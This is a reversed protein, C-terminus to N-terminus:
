GARRFQARGAKNTAALLGPVDRANVAVFRRKRSFRYEKHTASGTWTQLGTSRGLYEMLVEDEAARPRVVGAPRVEVPPVDHGVVFEYTPSVNHQSRIEYGFRELFAVTDAYYSGAPSLEVFLAPHQRELLRVAGRLVPLEHYEVDIKVLTVDNVQEQELELITDLTYIEVDDGQGLGPGLQYMGANNHGVPASSGMHGRGPEEGLAVNLLTVKDLLGNLALVERQHEFSSRVPEISIVRRADCFTAFYLTHNGICSGVDVFTGGSYHRRIWDLMGAEYFAQKRWSKQLHEREDKVIATAYGSGSYLRVQRTM